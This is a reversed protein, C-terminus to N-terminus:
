LEFLFSGTLIMILSTSVTYYDYYENVGKDLNDLLEEADEPTNGYDSVFPIGEHLGTVLRSPEYCEESM